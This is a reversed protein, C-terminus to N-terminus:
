HYERNSPINEDYGGEKRKKESPLIIVPCFYCLLLTSIKTYIGPKTYM